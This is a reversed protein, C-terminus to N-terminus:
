RQLDGKLYCVFILAVNRDEGDMKTERKRDGEQVSPSSTQKHLHLFREASQFLFVGPHPPSPHIRSSRGRSRTGSGVRM